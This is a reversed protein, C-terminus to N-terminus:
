SVLREMFVIKTQNLLNIKQKDIESLYDLTTILDAKVEEIRSLIMEDEM